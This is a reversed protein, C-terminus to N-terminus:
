KTLPFGIAQMEKKYCDPCIGHTVTLDGFPPKEGLPKKCWACVVKM